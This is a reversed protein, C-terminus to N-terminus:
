EAPAVANTVVKGTEESGASRGAASAQSAAKTRRAAPRRAGAASAALRVSDKEVSRYPVHVDNLAWGGFVMSYIFRICSGRVRVASPSPGPLRLPVTTTPSPSDPTPNVEDWGAHWRRELRGVVGGCTCMSM